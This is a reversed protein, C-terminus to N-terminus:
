ERGEASWGPNSKTINGVGGQFVGDVRLRVQPSITVNPTMAWLAVALTNKGQYDLIGEHVPFKTQPGLNGIVKGMMWGNVFFIARYPKYEEVGVSPDQFYELDEFNISMPVDFGTPLDLDFTTVFFGVGAESDPLGTSINRTQWESSTDFNPLHWGKREGFLGGENMVGRHKDPFNTYGGVKGQVKWESFNGSPNLQFGRIGRPSKMQDQTYWNENLGMNDQLVTVVNDQGKKLADEPFVFVQDTENINNASNTSNGFSTNLFVGNLWVSAAFGQGGNISLNMSKEVGTENFHGRWIVAGECFGYDCGYLVRGDGYWMPFIVNTTTHNAVVWQSDDWDERIEPLSDAYKWENASLDPVESAISSPLLSDGEQVLGTRYGTEVFSSEFTVPEGNWTASMVSKPAIITLSKGGASTTSNFESVDFDGKLNLVGDSINASRVLYPGGILVTENTGISWYNGHPDDANAIAPSWFTGATTTDAFLVLQTDSSHITQLGQIGKAFTVISESANSPQIQILPTTVNVISTGNLALAAEHEQESDGYLFLVDRGDITGAFLVSATSYLARSSGFLYDTVIVKSERGNLTIAPMVQPVQIEQGGSLSSSTTVTLKFQSIATSTSDNQRVIWFGAGSDPNRLLTAFGLSTNGVPTISGPLDSETSNAVVDTKYFEPSSRLFLGQLKLETYKTGLTRPESIAAGWDYSTYIGHYPINGWSTGGYLPYYNLLKVNDAWLQRHFVSEFDPGTLAYCGTYDPTNPGWAQPSGGQYEPIYLPQWSNVELHYEHYNEPVPKWVDPHACDYRNPYADFGYIDVAGTGNIFSRGMGPDNYTLPLDLGTSKNRYIAELDEFYGAGPDQGYENDVQLAIISGGNMIQHPVAERVIGEIYPTWAERYDSDNSRLHGAVETTVWHALGGASTEANIYPGLIPNLSQSKPLFVHFEGPRLVVWIGAEKAAEFLPELARYGEFDVVGRSPNISGMHTYLSLGNLGAAKFKQMIDPWLDPVPLRYTMFEGSHLFVRQGKIILSYSDFRVQDTWTQPLGPERKEFRFANAPFLLTSIVLIAATLFKSALERM